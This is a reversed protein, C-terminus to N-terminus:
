GVDEEKKKEEKEVDVLDSFVAYARTRHPIGTTREEGGRIMEEFREYSVDETM